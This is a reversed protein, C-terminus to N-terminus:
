NKKKKQCGYNISFPDLERLWVLSIYEHRFVTWWRLHKHVNCTNEVYRALKIHKAERGQMSNLGLGYGSEKFLQDTHHPIAYGITWVTPNVEALFLCHPTFYQQCCTKLTTVQEEQIKVRSYLAAAERLQVATLAMVHLKLESSKPLNPIRLREQVLLAFNWSFNKSELGTFRYM